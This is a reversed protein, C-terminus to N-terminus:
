PALIRSCAIQIHVCVSVGNLSPLNVIIKCVCGRFDLDEPNYRRTTIHYSVLTESTWIAVKKLTFHKTNHYSVLAESAWIVVMKLTFHKTNHYSVLTESTWIAVM